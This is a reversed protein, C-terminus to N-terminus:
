EKGVADPDDGALGESEMIMLFQALGVQTLRPGAPVGALALVRRVQAEQEPSGDVASKRLM